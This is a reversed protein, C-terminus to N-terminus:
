LVDGEPDSLNGQSESMDEKDKRKENTISAINRQIKDAAPSPNRRNGLRDSVNIKSVKKPDRDKEKQDTSATGSEQDEDNRALMPSLDPSLKKLNEILKKKLSSFDAKDRSKKEKLLEEKEELITQM